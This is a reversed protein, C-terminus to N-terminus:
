PWCGRRTASRSSAATREFSATWTGEFAVRAGLNAMRSEGCKDYFGVEAAFAAFGAGEVNFVTEHHPVVWCGRSPLGSSM